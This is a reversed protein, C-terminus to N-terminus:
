FDQFVPILFVFSPLRLSYLLTTSETVVYEPVIVIFHGFIPACANTWGEM